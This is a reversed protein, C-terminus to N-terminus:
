GRRNRRVLGAGAGIGALALLGLVLTPLGTAALVASAAGAARDAGSALVGNGGLLRAAPSSRPRDIVVGAVDTEDEVEGESGLDKDGDASAAEDLDPSDVIGVLDVGTDTDSGGAGTCEPVDASCTDTDDCGVTGPTCAPEDTEDCGVTGPTCAPEDTEDCGVTGPTCPEDTDCEATDTGDACSEDPQPQPKPKEDAAPRESKPKGGCWGENDDEFDDDNGCGNNGDQDALDVGGPGDPKDAGGNSRDPGRGDDDPDSSANGRNGSKGNEVSRDKGSPHRNDGDDAVNNPTNGDNTDNDETVQTTSAKDAKAPKGKGDPRAAAAPLALAVLLLACLALSLVYGRRARPLFKM